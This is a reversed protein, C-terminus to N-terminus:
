AEQLRIQEQRAEEQRRLEELIENMPLLEEALAHRAHRALVKVTMGRHRNM